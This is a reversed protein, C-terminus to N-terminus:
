YIFSASFIITDSGHNNGINFRYYKTKFDNLTIQNSLGSIHSNIYHSDLNYFNVGDNSIEPTIVLSNINTNAEVLLSLESLQQLTVNPSTTSFGAALSQANFLYELQLSSGNTVLLENNDNIKLCQLLNTTDNHCYLSICQLEKFETKSSKVVKNNLKQTPDVRVM